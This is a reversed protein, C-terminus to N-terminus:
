PREGRRAARRLRNIHDTLTAQYRRSAELGQAMTYYRESTRLTSHGLLAATLRAGQPDDLAISTAACHRLLHPNIREGLVTPTAREFRSSVGNITMPQGERTIWLADHTHGQLLRPRHHAIYRTMHPVLSAPLPFSMPGGCKLDEPELRIVFGNSTPQLHQGVRLGALTRRRMPRSVTLAIMLADRFATAHGFPRAEPAAEIQDLVTVARQYLDAANRIRPAIPRRNTAGRKLRGAVRRLWRWDTDPVLAPLIAALQDLTTWLSLPALTPRLADIYLRVTTPTVREAPGANRDLLGRQDLFTLWRGYNAERSRRTAMAWGAAAGAEDLPGGTECAAHWLGRDLAPWEAVPRAHRNTNMM